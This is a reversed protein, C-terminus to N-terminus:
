NAMAPLRQSGLRGSHCVTCTAPPRKTLVNCYYLISYQIENITARGKRVSSPLTHVARPDCIQNKHVALLFIVRWMQVDLLSFSM